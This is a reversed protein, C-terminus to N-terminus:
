KFVYIFLFIVPPVVSFNSSSLNPIRHSTLRIKLTDHGIVMASFKQLVYLVGNSM